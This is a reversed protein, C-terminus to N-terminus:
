GGVLHGEPVAGGQLPDSDPQSPHPVAEPTETDNAHSSLTATTTLHQFERALDRALARALRIRDRLADPVALDPQERARLLLQAAGAKDRQRAFRRRTSM